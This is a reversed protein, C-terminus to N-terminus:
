NEHEMCKFCTIRTMMMDVCDLTVGLSDSSEKDKSCPLETGVFVSVSGRTPHGPVCVAVTGSNGPASQGLVADGGGLANGQERDQSFDFGMQFVCGRECNDGSQGYGKWFNDITGCSSPSPTMQKDVLHGSLIGTGGSVIAITGGVWGAPNSLALLALGGAALGGMCGAWKGGTGTPPTYVLSTTTGAGASFPECTIDGPGNIAGGDPKTISADCWPNTIYAVLAAAVFLVGAIPKYM